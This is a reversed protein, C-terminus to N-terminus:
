LWKMLESEIASEVAALPQSADIVRMRETCRSAQQLYSQRVKEFFDLQEREFRDPAGRTRARAMGIEVPADFLFTLDPRLDGQIWHELYEIRKLDLGRGGGQYAYTADTFRDCLVWFGDNLAPRIVKEIHEARATFMLLLESEPLLSENASHLLLSRISEGVATGGPERTVLVPKGHAALWGEVYKLNTSKGVGEGGELTIFLGREM